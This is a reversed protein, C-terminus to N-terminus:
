FTLALTRVETQKRVMLYITQLILLKLPQQCPRLQNILCKHRALNASVTNARHFTGTNSDPFLPRAQTSPLVQTYMLSDLHIHYLNTKHSANSISAEGSHSMLIKNSGKCNMVKPILWRNCCRLYNLNSRMKSRKQRRKKKWGTGKIKPKKGSDKWNKNICKKSDNFSKYKRCEKLFYNGKKSSKIGKMRFNKTSKSWPKEKKKWSSIKSKLNNLNNKKKTSGESLQKEKGKFNKNKKLWDSTTSGKLNFKDKRNKFNKNKGSSNKEKETFNSGKDKLIASPNM